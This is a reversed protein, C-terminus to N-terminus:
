VRVSTIRGRAGRAEINNGTQTHPHTSCSNTQGDVTPFCFSGRTWFFDRRRAPVARVDKSRCLSLCKKQITHCSACLQPDGFPYLPFHAVSPAFGCWISLSLIRCLAPSPDALQDFHRATTSFHYWEGQQLMTNKQKLM